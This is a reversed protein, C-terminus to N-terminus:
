AMGASGGIPVASATIHDIEALDGQSLTLDLAGVREALHAPTRAGVIAVQVAPHALVWAVALQSITTGRDAAFRRLATVIELNRCFGPGTFAPSYSRWDDADFTTSEAIGDGLLGHALTGYVLVGIQHAQSYPLLGAPVATFRPCGGRRSLGASSLIGACAASDRSRARMWRAPPRSGSAAAAARAARATARARPARPSVASWASRAPYRMRTISTSGPWATDPGAQVGVAAGAAGAHDDVVVVAVQEADGEDAGAHFFEDVRGGDGTTPWVGILRSAV